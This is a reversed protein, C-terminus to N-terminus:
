QYHSLLATVISLQALGKRVALSEETVQDLKEATAVLAVPLSTVPPLGGAYIEGGEDWIFELRTGAAALKAACCDCYVGNKQCCFCLSCSPQFCTADLHTCQM